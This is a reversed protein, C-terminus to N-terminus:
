KKRGLVKELPGLRTSKEIDDLYAVLLSKALTALPIAFFVGWFGWLSGFALVGLLIFIPHLKVAESFMLPVVVYADIVQIIGYAILLWWLDWTAGWQVYGLLFLPLAAMFVGVFPIIVSMGSVMGMMVSYRFGMMAFVVWSVIAVMLVEWIKGRIYNAIKAETENWIREVLEREPPLLRLFSRLLIEKDKLLFLVLIPVLGLYLLWAGIENLSGVVRGLLLQWNDQLHQTLLGAIQQQQDAPFFGSLSELGSNVLLQIKVSIESFNQALQITQRFAINVPGIVLILYSLIFATYVVLCARLHKGPWFHLLQRVGGDLFYAIIIAILFPALISGFYVILIISVALVLFLAVWRPDKVLGLLKDQYTQPM